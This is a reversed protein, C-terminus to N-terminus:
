NLRTEKKGMNQEQEITARYEAFDALKMYKLSLFLIGLDLQRTSTITFIRMPILFAQNNSNNNRPICRGTVTKYISMNMSMVIVSRNVLESYMNIFNM